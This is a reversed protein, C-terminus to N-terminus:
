LSSTKTDELDIDAVDETFVSRTFLLLSILMGTLVAIFDYFVAAFPDEVVPGLFLGVAFAAVSTCVFLRGSWRKNLSIGILSAINVLLIPLAVFFLVWDDEVNTAALEQAKYEALVPPMQIEFFPAGFATLLSSILIVKALFKIHKTTDM